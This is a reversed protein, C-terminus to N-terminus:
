YFFFEVREPICQRPLKRKRYGCMNWNDLATYPILRRHLQRGLSYNLDSRQLFFQPFGWNATGTGHHGVLCCEFHQSYSCYEPSEVPPPGAESNMGCTARLLHWTRKDMVWLWSDEAMHCELLSCADSFSPEILTLVWLSIILQFDCEVQSRIGLM